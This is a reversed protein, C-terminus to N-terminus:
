RSLALGLWFLYAEDKYWEALKKFTKVANGKMAEIAVSIAMEIKEKKFNNIKNMIRNLINIIEKNKIKKIKSLILCSKIFAKDLIELKNWIRKKKFLKYIQYLDFYSISDM